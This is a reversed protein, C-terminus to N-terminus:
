KEEDAIKLEIWFTSGAGLTSRVGYSGHHMMMISKVISLGLGTGMAARKHVADAKYYREWILELQDKPIGQGTDSVEIRISDGNRFQRVKVSGDDGTHTIANNVLNLLARQIMVRDARVPAKDILDFTINYGNKETLARYTSVASGVTDSLDILQFDPQYNGSEIKSYDLMETVISNLRSTEDIVTQINESSFEGPLDRMAESYGQILTLPTRLDHSINAILEKRLRDVKSLEEGAYNLTASLENIERYGAEENFRVSYHGGAFLKARENINVIPRAIRRSIFLALVLALIVLLISVVILVLTITKQTAGVPAIVSNLMLAYTQDGSTYIKTYIVSHMQDASYLSYDTAIYGRRFEFRVSMLREGGNEAAFKYLSFCEASSLDYLLCNSYEKDTLRTVKGSPMRLLSICFSYKDAIEGAKETLKQEDDLYRSLTEASDELEAIRFTKYIRELFVVQFLWLLTLTVILFIIFGGFIRFKM